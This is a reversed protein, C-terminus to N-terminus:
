FNFLDLSAISRSHATLKAFTKCFTNRFAKEHWHQEDM